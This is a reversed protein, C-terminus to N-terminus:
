DFDLLGVNVAAFLFELTLGKIRIKAWLLDKLKMEGTLTVLPTM